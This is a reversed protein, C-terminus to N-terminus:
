RYQQRGVPRRSRESCRSAIDLGRTSIKGINVNQANVFNSINFWLSGTAGRHILGCLAADGTFACDNIITNSSLSTITDKIRVYFLDFSAVLKPVL